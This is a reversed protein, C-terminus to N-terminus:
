PPWGSILARSGSREPRSASGRLRMLLLFGTDKVAAFAPPQSTEPPLPVPTVIDFGKYITKITQTSREGGSPQYPFISAAPFLAPILPNALSITLPTVGDTAMAKAPTTIFYMHKTQTCLMRFFVMPDPPDTQLQHPLLIVSREVLFADDSLCLLTLSRNM